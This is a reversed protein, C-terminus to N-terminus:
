KKAALRIGDEDIVILRNRYLSGLARKFSKKSARFLRFIEEPPSKDSLPASGGQRQLYDLIQTELGARSAKDLLTISLDIKGDPRIAKVWGKIREGIHLPQSIEDQYVLGLCQSDIVAKYGLSTRGSILLDVPQRVQLTASTEPLFHHLKTSACIRQTASDVYVRVVYHQGEQVREAQEDMPLLLDKPLGWDLFAGVPTVAVVKLSACEGAQALPRVTTAIPKDESDRYLFVECAEGVDVGAPVQSNLLQLEGWEGADLIVGYAGRRIIPLTNYRGLAIM